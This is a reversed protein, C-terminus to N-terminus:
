LGVTQGGLSEVSWRILHYGSASLKDCNTSPHLHPGYVRSAEFLSADKCAILVAVSLLYV